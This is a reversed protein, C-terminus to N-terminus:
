NILDFVCQLVNEVSAAHLKMRKGVSNRKQMVDDKLWSCVSDFLCEYSDVFRIGARSGFTRLSALRLNPQVSLVPIEHLWSEYLLISAMGIVGDAVQAVEDGHIHSVECRYPLTLGSCFSSVEERNDRPHPVVHVHFRQGCSALAGVVSKLVEQETYGRFSPSLDSEGQDARVPENIFFLHVLDDALGFASLRQSRERSFRALVSGELDRFAPHGTVKVQSSRDV